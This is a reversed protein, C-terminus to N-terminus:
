TSVPRRKKAITIPIFYRLDVSAVCAYWEGSKVNKQFLERRNEKELDDLPIGVKIM